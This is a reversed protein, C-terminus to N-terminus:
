PLLENAASGLKCVSTGKASSCVARPQPLFFFLGPSGTPVEARRRRRQRWGMPEGGSGM